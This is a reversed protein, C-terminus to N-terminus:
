EGFTNDIEMRDPEADKKSTIQAVTNTSYLAARRNAVSADEDGSHTHINYMMYM